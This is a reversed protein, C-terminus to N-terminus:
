KKVLFHNCNELHREPFADMKPFSKNLEIVMYNGLDQLIKYNDSYFHESIKIEKM